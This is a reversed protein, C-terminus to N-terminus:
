RAHTFPGVEQIFLQLIHVLAELLGQEMVMDM